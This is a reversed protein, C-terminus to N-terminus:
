CSSVKGSVHVYGLFPMVMLDVMLMFKGDWVCTYGGPISNGDPRCEAHVLRGLCM